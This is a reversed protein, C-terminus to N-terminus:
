NKEINCGKNVSRVTFIASIIVLALVLLKWVLKDNPLILPAFTIGFISLLAVVCPTCGFTLFGVIVGIFPINTAAVDRKNISMSIYSWTIVVASLFSIVINVLIHATVTIWGFKSLMISYSGNSNIDLIIYITMFLLFAILNIAIYKRTKHLEM